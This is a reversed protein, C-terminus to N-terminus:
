LLRLHISFRALKKGNVQYNIEVHLGRAAQIFREWLRLVPKRNRTHPTIDGCWPRGGRRGEDEVVAAAVDGCVEGL